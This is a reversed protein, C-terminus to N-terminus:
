YQSSGRRTSTPQTGAGMTTNASLYRPLLGLM